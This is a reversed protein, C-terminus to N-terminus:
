TGGAATGGGGGHPPHAPWGPHEQGPLRYRQETVAQGDERNRQQDEVQGAARQDRPQGGRRHRQAVQGDPSGAPTSTSRSSAQRTSTVMSAARAAAKATRYRSQTVPAARSQTIMVIASAAPATETNKSVARTTTTFSRNGPRPNIRALEARSSALWAPSTAPGAITPTSAAAPASPAASRASASVNATDRAESSATRRRTGCGARGVPWRDSAASKRAPM